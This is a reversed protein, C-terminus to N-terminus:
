KYFMGELFAEGLDVPAELGLKWSFPFVPSTPALSFDRRSFHTASKLLAIDYPLFFTPM